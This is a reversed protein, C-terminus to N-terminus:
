RGVELSRGTEAAWDDAGGGVLVALDRTGSRALVSAATMAREGHGCMVVVPEETPGLSGAALAGLEVNAAGPIHGGAYEDAQRVDLVTRDGVGDAGVVPVTRVPGGATTWAALGGELEGAIRDYGIKLAQWAIEAPDQDANRVFVLPRDSSTPM